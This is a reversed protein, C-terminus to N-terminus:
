PRYVRLVERGAGWYQDRIDTKRNPEVSSSGNLEVGVGVPVRTSNTSAYITGATNDDTIFVGACTWVMRNGDSDNSTQYTGGTMDTTGTASGHGAGWLASFKSQILMDAMFAGRRLAIDVTMTCDVSATSTAVSSQLRVASESPSNRLVSVSTATTPCVLDFTAALDYWGVKVERATGWSSPTAGVPFTMKLLNSAGPQIKVLGNSLEWDTTTNPASAGSVAYGGMKVTAACDYWDSPSLMYTSVIDGAMSGSTWLAVSGGPGTRTFPSPTIYAGDDTITEGTADAPMATWYKETVSYTNYSRETALMYSEVQPQAMNNQRLLEVTYRLRYRSEHNPDLEFTVSSVRYFGNLSSDYSYVVPVQPEFPNRLGHLQWRLAKLKAASDTSAYGDITVREGDISIRLPNGVTIDTGFRGIQITM